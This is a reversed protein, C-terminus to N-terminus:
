HVAHVDTLTVAYAFPSACVACEGWGVTGGDCVALVCMAAVGVVRSGRGLVGGRGVGVGEGVRAHVQVVRSDVATLTSDDVEADAGAEAAAVSALFARLRAARAARAAPLPVAPLLLAVLGVSSRALTTAWLSSVYGCTQSQRHPTAASYQVPGHFHQVVFRLADPPAARERHGAEGPPQAGADSGAADGGADSGGTAAEGDSPAPSPPAAVPVVRVVADDGANSARRALDALFAAAAADVARADDLTALPARLLANGHALLSAHLLSLTGGAGDLAELSRANDAFPTRFYPIGEAEYQWLENHLVAQLGLQRVKECWTNHLLTGLSM